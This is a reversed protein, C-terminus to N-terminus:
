NAVTSLLSKRSLNRSIYNFGGVTLLTKIKHITTIVEQQNDFSDFYNDMYFKNLVANVVHVNFKECNDLATKRLVWNSCSPSDTKGCLYVNM